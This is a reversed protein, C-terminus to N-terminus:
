RVILATDALLDDRGYWRLQDGEVVIVYGSAEGYAWNDWQRWWRGDEIWWRGCDCDENAYGARGVLTGDRRVQLVCPDGYVTDYLLTAGALASRLERPSLPARDAALRRSGQAPDSRLLTALAQVGNRIREKPIASVGLRFDEGTIECRLPELLVGQSVARRALDISDLSTNMRVVYASAGVPARIAVFKHLYHNLADRLAAHREGLLRRTRALNVAYHGLSIFYAWQRQQVISLEVGTGRRIQRAREILRADAVLVGPVPGPSAVGGLSGIHVVRGDTDLARLASVPRAERLEMPLLTEVFIADRQALHALLGVPDDRGSRPENGHRAATLVIAGIPLDGDVRTRICLDAGRESLRRVIEDDAPAELVVPTNRRVLAEIVLLTSFRVSPTVLIEDAGANIGCAPLIKTRVEDLLMLDDVDRAGNWRQAEQRTAALRAAERWEKLPLLTADYCGSLFPYPYRDWAPPIRFAGDEPAALRTALASNGAGSRRRTAIRDTPADPAVFVGSRERSVLHGEALLAEYALAVTNRSIGAREALQRSSPLRRGPRLVGRQIADVLRQRLQHQLTLPSSPDLVLNLDDM